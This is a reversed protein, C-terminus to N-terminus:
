VAFTNARITFFTIKAPIFHNRDRQFNTKKVTISVNTRDTFGFTPPEFGIMATDHKEQALLRVIIARRGPFKHKRQTHDESGIIINMNRNCIYLSMWYCQGQHVPLFPGIRRRYGRSCVFM